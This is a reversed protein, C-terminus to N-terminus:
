GWVVHRTGLVQPRSSPEPGVQVAAIGIRFLLEAEGRLM